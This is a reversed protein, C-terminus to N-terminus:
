TQNTVELLLELSRLSAAEKNAERDGNLRLERAVTGSSAGVAIYLLGRDKDELVGPGLNGTTAISFDTKTLARVQEAMETATEESVVGQDSITKAFVGLIEEKARASYSIIGTVFFANSGPLTTLINNSLMGGTCLEAVSVTANKEPLLRHVSGVIDLTQQRM